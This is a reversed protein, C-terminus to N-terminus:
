AAKDIKKKAQERRMQIVKRDELAYKQLGAFHVDRIYHKWDILGADVPFIARDAEGFEEVLSMMKHNNFVVNMDGYFAYIKSLAKVVELNEITKSSPKLGILKKFKYFANAQLAVLGIAAQFVSKNLVNFPKEPKAYFLRDYKQYNSTGEEVVYDILRQVTIPNADGSCCQYIRNSGPDKISKAASYLISNSVFDAPIIDMLSDKRGPFFSVKQRAYAMIMADAVKVGEIWGGVPDLYTSEIISPRLITLTKGKFRHLLVQEAMWKTFTYVDNWGYLNATSAGLETLEEALKTKDKNAQKTQEIAKQFEPILSEVDYYGDSHQEISKGTPGVINEGMQGENYGNVYCTSVHVLPINGAIESFNVLNFLSLTNIALAQDLPERFNVSAASNIIIDVQQSLENWEASNLGFNDETIEGTICFVKESLINDLANADKERLSDFISASAIEHKFREDATPYKKNGRILLTIRAVDPVERIIKELLVKGLFGTCGTILLRKNALQQKIISSNKNNM